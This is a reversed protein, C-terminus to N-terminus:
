KSVELSKLVIPDKIAKELSAVHGKGLFVLIQKDPYHIMCKLLQNLIYSERSAILFEYAVPYNTKLNYIVKNEDINATSDKLSKEQFAQLEKMFGIQESEPIKQMLDNVERVDRDVLVLPIKNELAYQAASIMDSGYNVKEEDAKKKIAHSIKGLITKPEEQVQQVQGNLFINFRTECLEVGIVDPKCELIIKEITENSDLHTTGVLKIM